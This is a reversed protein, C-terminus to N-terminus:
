RKAPLPAPASEFTPPVIGAAALNERLVEADPVAFLDALPGIGISGATYARIAREQLRAPPRRVGLAKKAAEWEARLGARVFLTAPGIALLHERQSEDIKRLNFLHWAAAQLSAGFNLMIQAVTRESLPTTELMQTIAAEPMLFHAAFANARMEEPSKSGSFLQEVVVEHADGCLRHCVEHALTFRQRGPFHEANAVAIATNDVQVYLGDIGDPLPEIVVDMGLRREILQPLNAIPHHDLGLQMRVEAALAAGQRIALGGHPPAFSPPSPLKEGPAVRDLLAELEFLRRLRGIAARAESPLPVHAIRAALRMPTASRVRGLLDDVTAELAEAILALEYSNVGRQGAEIKTIVTPHRGIVAALEAQTIGRVTRLASIRQGLEISSM